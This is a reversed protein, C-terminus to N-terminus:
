VPTPSGAQQRPARGRGRLSSIVIAALCTTTAVFFTHNLAAVFATPNAPTAGGAMGTHFEFATTMLLGALSIGFLNGLGFMVNLTASALGLHEKPAAALLGTSNAPNFLGNAVGSFALMLSPLIWHSDTRLFTGLFVSTALTVVGATAPLSPGMRDSLYGSVPGLAVSLIPAALFLLGVFSPRLRLIDQLYFPLLFSGITYNLAVILLSAASFTFMRIRFLSFRLMPSPTTAERVLFGSLLGVLLIILATKREVSLLSLTRRDLLTILTITSTVLLVAGPYDVPSREATPRLRSKKVLTLLVGTAGLPVLFFFTWRWGLYDILVGGISPGLLFGSHFATTMFGQAKGRSEEPVAESAVARGVAATM